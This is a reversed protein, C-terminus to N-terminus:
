EPRVTYVALVDRDAHYMLVVVEAGHDSADVASRAARYVAPHLALANDKGDWDLPAPQVEDTGVNCMVVPRVGLEAEAANAQALFAPGFRDLLDIDASQIATIDSQSLALDRDTIHPLVRM